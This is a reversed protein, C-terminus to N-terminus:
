LDRATTNHVALEAARRARNAAADNRQHRALLPPRNALRQRQVGELQQVAWSGGAVKPRPKSAQPELLPAAGGSLGETHLGAPAPTDAAGRDDHENNEDDHENNEDDHENNEDDHENNEDDHEYGSIWLTPGSKAFQGLLKVSFGDNSAQLQDL